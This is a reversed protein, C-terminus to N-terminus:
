PLRDAIEKSKQELRALQLSIRAFEVELAKAMHGVAYALQKLAPDHTVTAAQASDISNKFSSTEM